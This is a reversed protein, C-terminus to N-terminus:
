SPWALPGLEVPEFEFRVPFSTAVRASAARRDAGTVKGAIPASARTTSTSYRSPYVSRTVNEPPKTRSSSKSRVRRSADQRRPAIDVEESARRDVLERARDSPRVADVEIGVNEV